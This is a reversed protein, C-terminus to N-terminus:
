GSLTWSETRLMSEFREELSLENGPGFFEFAVSRIAGGTFPFEQRGRRRPYTDCVPSIKDVGVDYSEFGFRARVQKDIRGEGCVTGNISLRVQAPGGPVAGEVAFLARLDVDGTPVPMESVIEYRETDFWNYHYVLRHDRIFLSWGATKGGLCVLVGEVGAEAIAAEVHISHNVNHTKPGAGEPLRVMGPPLVIRDRGTFYGPRLTVDLREAMRDDLPLVHHRAAEAMFLDQLERLKEPDKGSLDRSQSYDEAVHYLEWKGTSPSTERALWPLRAHRFCAMWGGAYIARHGIMEFYQEQRRDPFAAGEAPFTYAMSIGEVPKQAVGGVVAPQAIGVVELL